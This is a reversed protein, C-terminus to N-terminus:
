EDDHPFGVTPSFHHCEIMLNQILRNFLPIPDPVQTEHLCPTMDGWSQVFHVCLIKQGV